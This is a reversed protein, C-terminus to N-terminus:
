VRWKYEYCKVKPEGIVGLFQHINNKGYMSIRNKADVRLNLDYTQNLISCLRENESKSFADTCLAIQDRNKCVYGDGLYWWYLTLPSIVNLEPPVIKTKERYWMKHLDFIQISFASKCFFNLNPSNKPKYPYLCGWTASKLNERIANAFEEHLVGFTFRGQFAGREIHMDSLLMGSLVDKEQESLVIHREKVIRASESRTRTILGFKEFYVEITGLHCGFTKALQPQSQGGEYLYNLKTKFEDDSLNLQKVISKMHYLKDLLAM